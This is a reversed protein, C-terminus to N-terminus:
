VAEAALRRTVLASEIRAKLTKFRFPKLAIDTAGADVLRAHTSVETVATVMIVPVDRLSQDGRIAALVGFGDVNPLMLDLLVLDPTQKRAAVIAAAGDMAVRPVHGLTRCFRALLRANLTDDEVVLIDAQMDSM